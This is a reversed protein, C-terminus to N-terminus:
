QKLRVPRTRAVPLGPGPCNPWLEAKSIPTARLTGNNSEFRVSRRLVLHRLQELELHAVAPGVDPHPPGAAVRRTVRPLRQFVQGVALFGNGGELARSAV